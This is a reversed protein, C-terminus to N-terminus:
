MGGAAFYRHGRRQKTKGTHRYKISVGRRDLGFRQNGAFVRVLSSAGTNGRTGDFTEIDAAIAANDPDSRIATICPVTLPVM